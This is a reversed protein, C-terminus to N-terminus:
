AVLSMPDPLRAITAERLLFVSCVHRLNVLNKRSRLNSHEKEVVTLNDSGVFYTRRFVNAILRSSETAFEGVILQLNLEAACARIAENVPDVVRQPDFSCR